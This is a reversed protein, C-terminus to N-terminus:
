CNVLLLSILKTSQLTHLCFMHNYSHHSTGPRTKSPSFILKQSRIFAGAGPELPAPQRVGLGLESAGAAAPGALQSLDRDAASPSFHM